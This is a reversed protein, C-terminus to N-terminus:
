GNWQVVITQTITVGCPVSAFVEIDNPDIKEDEILAQIECEVEDRSFHVSCSDQGHGPYTIFYRTIMTKDLRVIHAVLTRIAM